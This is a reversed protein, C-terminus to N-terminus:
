SWKIPIYLIPMTARFWVRFFPITRVCTLDNWGMHPIKLKGDSPTIKQVKGNIWGLGKTQNHEFGESAMLQMGVCIGLFPRAKVEVAECMAEYVVSAVLANRCAPFAGDGPLVIRDACARWMLM